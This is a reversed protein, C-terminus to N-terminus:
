TLRTSRATIVVATNADSGALLKPVVQSVDNRDAGLFPHARVVASIRGLLEDVLVSLEELLQRVLVVAVLGGGLHSGAGAPEGIPPRQALGFKSQSRLPLSEFGRHVYVAWLPKRSRRM